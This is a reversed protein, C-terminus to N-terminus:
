PHHAGRDLAARAVLALLGSLAGWLANVALVSVPAFPHTLPGQLEGQLLPSLIASSVVAFVGYALGAHVLTLLPRPVRAVVVATVWVATIVVTTVVPVTPGPSLADAIGTVNLLPRILALAGLGLVLPWPIESWPGRSTSPTREGM